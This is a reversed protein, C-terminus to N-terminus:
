VVENGLMADNLRQPTHGPWGWTRARCRASQRLRLTARCNLLRIGWSPLNAFRQTSRIRQYMLPRTKQVAPVQPALVPFGSRVLEGLVMQCCCSCDCRERAVALGLHRRSFDAGRRSITCISQSSRLGSNAMPFCPDRVAFVVTSTSSVPSLATETRHSTRGAEAQPRPQCRKTTRLQRVCRVAIGAPYLLDHSSDIGLVGKTVSQAVQRNPM